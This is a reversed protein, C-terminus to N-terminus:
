LEAIPQTTPRKSHKYTFIRDRLQLCPREVLLFLATAIMLVMGMTVMFSIGSHGGLGRGALVTDAAYFALLHTLYISYALNAILTFGRWRVRSLICQRSLAAATLLGFSLALLTFSVTGGFIYSDRSIIAFTTALGAAGAVLLKNGFSMLGSWIDPRFHQLAALAVGITLGDLHTYTPYYIRAMYSLADMRTILSQDPIGYALIAGRIILQSLIVLPFIWYVGKRERKLILAIVLPLFLYFHEEVCLSWSIQFFPLTLTLNQTFTVYQALVVLAEKFTQFPNLAATLLCLGLVVYYNPLTRMFRRLYFTKIPIAHHKLHLSFLQGAILYGSLVFFLEVGVWGFRILPLPILKGQNYHFFVVSVIAACRLLDLGVLRRRDGWWLRRVASPWRYLRSDNM